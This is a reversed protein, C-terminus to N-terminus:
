ISSRPISSYPCVMEDELLIYLSQWVEISTRLGRRDRECVGEGTNGVVQIVLVQHSHVEDVEEGQEDGDRSNGGYFSL